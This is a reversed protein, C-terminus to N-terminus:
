TPKHMVEELWRQTDCDRVRRKLARRNEERIDEWMINLELTYRNVTRIWEGGGAEIGPELYTKIKEFNNDMMDKLYLFTIEMARTEIRSSGIESRLAVITAYGGVGQLYNICATRGM